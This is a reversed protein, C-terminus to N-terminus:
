DQPGPRGSTAPIGVSTGSPEFSGCLPPVDTPFEPETFISGTVCTLGSLTSPSVGGPDCPRHGLGTGKVNLFGRNALATFADMRRAKM